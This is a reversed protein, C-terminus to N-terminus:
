VFQRPNRKSVADAFTVFKAMGYIRDVARYDYAGILQDNTLNTTFHTRKCSRLRNNLIVMLVDYKDGWDRGNASGTGLDDVLVEDDFHNDLMNALDDFRWRTVINMDVVCIDPDLRKFFLTKGTGVMGTLALAYGRGYLELAELSKQDFIYGAKSMRRVNRELWASLAKEDVPKPADADVFEAKALNLLKAYDM